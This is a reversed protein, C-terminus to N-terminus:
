GLPIRPRELVTGLLKKRELTVTEKLGYKLRIMVGSVASGGSERKLPTAGCHRFRKRGSICRSGKTTVHSWRTHQLCKDHDSTDM